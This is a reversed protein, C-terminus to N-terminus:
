KDPLLLFISFAALIGSSNIVIHLLSLAACHCFLHFVQGFKKLVTDTAVSHSAVDTVDLPLVLIDDDNLCGCAAIDVYCKM